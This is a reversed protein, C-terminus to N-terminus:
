EPNKLKRFLNYYGSLKAWLKVPHTDQDSFRIRNIEYVDRNWRDSGRNTAMAGQYGAERVIRKIDDNFGGVPYCFFRVEEGLGERLRRRSDAIEQRRQAEDLDPLYAQTLGHSGFRIGAQQMARVRPWDLFGDRGMFDPSIFVTAPFRYQTLVPLANTYNNEYGDDFTLVVTGRPFTQGAVTGAVLDDLPIVRYGHRRLYAMQREFVEPSVTDSAADPNEEVRHYMIVPVTYRPGLVLMAAGVLVALAGVVMVIRRVRKM